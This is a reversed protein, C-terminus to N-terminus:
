YKLKRTRTAFGKTIIRRRSHVIPKVPFVASSNKRQKAVCPHLTHDVYPLIAGPLKGREGFVRVQLKEQTLNPVNSVPM